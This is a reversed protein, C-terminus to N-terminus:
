ALLSISVLALANGFQRDPQAYDNPSVAGVYVFLTIMAGIYVTIIVLLLLTNSEGCYTSIFVLTATVILLLLLIYSIVSSFILLTMPLAAYALFFMFAALLRVPYILVTVGDFVNRQKIGILYPNFLNSLRTVTVEM